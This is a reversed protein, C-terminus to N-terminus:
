VTTQLESMKPKTKGPGSRDLSEKCECEVCYSKDVVEGCCAGGDFNCEPTNAVDDCIADLAIATYNCSTYDFIPASTIDPITTRVWILTDIMWQGDKLSCEFEISAQFASVIAPTTGYNVLLGKIDPSICTLKEESVLKCESDALLTALSDKSILANLTYEDDGLGFNEGAKDRCILFIM